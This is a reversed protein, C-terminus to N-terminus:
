PSGLYAIQGRQNISVSVFEITHRNASGRDAIEHKPMVPPVFETIKRNFINFFSTAGDATLAGFFVAGESFLPDGLCDFRTGDDTASDANVVSEATGRKVMFIGMTGSCRGLVALRGQDNLGPSAPSLYDIRGLGCSASQSLEKHLTGQAFTFLGAGRDTRATFAVLLGEATVTAAPLGFSRFHESDPLHTDQLALITIGGDESVMMEAQGGPELYGLFAVGGHNEPRVSGFTIVRVMRGDPLREGTRVLRTLKGQALKFLGDDGSSEHALFVIGGDSTQQPRPDAVMDLASGGESATPWTVRFISGSDPNAVFISWRLQHNWERAAGFVVTGDSAVSPMGLDELVVWDPGASGTQAIKVERGDRDVAYLADSGQSISGDLGLMYAHASGIFFTIALAVSVSVAVRPTFMRQEM